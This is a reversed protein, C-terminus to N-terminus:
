DADEKETPPPLVLLSFGRGGDAAALHDVTTGRGGRGHRAQGERSMVLGFGQAPRRKKVKM